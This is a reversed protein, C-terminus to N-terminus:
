AMLGNLIQELEPSFTLKVSCDGMSPHRIGDRLKTIIGRLM